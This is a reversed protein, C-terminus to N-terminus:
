EFSLESSPGELLLVAIRDVRHEALDKVPAVAFGAIDNGRAAPESGELPDYCYRELLGPLSLAEGQSHNLLQYQGIHKPSVLSGTRVVTGVPSNCKEVKEVQYAVGDIGDKLFILRFPVHATAADRKLREIEQGLRRTAALATWHPFQEIVIPVSSLLLFVLATSAIWLRNYRRIRQEVKEWLEYHNWETKSWREEAVDSEYIPVM